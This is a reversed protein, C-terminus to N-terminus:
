HAARTGAAPAQGEGFARIMNEQVYSAVLAGDEAYVHARGYSRGAGAAPSEHSLLMWRGAEVPAHFTLTHTIVSTSISRHALSQGVGPHPRMATGILFGDSAFALLARNVTPDDPAGPFRTWVDLEAPGTADPDAIDVGGVTRIEWFGSGHASPEADLPALDAGPDPQHRILDPDPAHLLVLSRTCLRGAQSATVTASAFTRGAQMVDVEYELPADTSAGRAFVTHISKVEKAPDVAAGALISQALLQGGFVVSGGGFELSAASWTGEGTPTLALVGLLDDLEPMTTAEQPHHDTRVAVSRVKAV